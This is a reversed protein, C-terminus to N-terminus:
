RPFRGSRKAPAFKESSFREPREDAGKSFHVWTVNDRYNRQIMM